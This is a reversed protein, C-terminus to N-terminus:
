DLAALGSQTAVPVDDLMEVYGLELLTQLHDPKPPTLKLRQAVIDRLTWRLAIAQELEFNALPRDAM